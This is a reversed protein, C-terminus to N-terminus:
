WWASTPTPARACRSTPWCRPPAPSSRRAARQGRRRRHAHRRQGRRLRRLARLVERQGAGQDARHLLQATRGGAGRVARRHGGAVQGLRDADGPRRERRQGARDAGGGAGPVARHREGRGMRRLLRVARRPRRGERAPRVPRGPRRAPSPRDATMTLWLTGRRGSRGSAAPAPLVPIPHRDRDPLSGEAKAQGAGIGTTLHVVPSRFTAALHASTLAGFASPHRDDVGCTATSELHAPLRRVDSGM